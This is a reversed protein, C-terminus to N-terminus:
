PDPDGYCVKDELEKVRQQLLEIRADAARIQQYLSEMMLGSLLLREHLNLLQRETESPGFLWRFM